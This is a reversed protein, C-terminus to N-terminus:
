IKLAYNVDQKFAFLVKQYFLKLLGNTMIKERRTDNGSRGADRDENDQADDHGAQRGTHAAEDASGCKAGNRYVNNHPPAQRLHASHPDPLLAASPEVGGGSGSGSNLGSKGVQSAITAAASAISM